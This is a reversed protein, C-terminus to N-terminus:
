GGRMEGGVFGEVLVHGVNKELMSDEDAQRNLERGSPRAGRLSRVAYYRHDIKAKGGAERGLQKAAQANELRKKELDARNKELRRMRLLDKEAQEEKKREEEAKLRDAERAARVKEKLEEAKRRREKRMREDAEKAEAPTMFVDEDINGLEGANIRVYKEQEEQRDQRDATDMSEDEGATDLISEDGEKDKGAVSGDESDM